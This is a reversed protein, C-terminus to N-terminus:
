LLQSRHKIDSFISFAYVDVEISRFNRIVNNIGLESFTLSVESLKAPTAQSDKWALSFPFNKDYFECMGLDEYFHRDYDSACKNFHVDMNDVEFGM